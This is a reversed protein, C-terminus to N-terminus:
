CSPAAAFGSPQPQLGNNIVELEPDPKLRGPEVWAGQRVLRLAAEAGGSAPFEVKLLLRLDARKDLQADM